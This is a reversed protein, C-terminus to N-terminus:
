DPAIGSTDLLARMPSTVAVVGRHLAPPMSNVRYIKVGPVRGSRGNPVTFELAEPARLSALAWLWLALRHSALGRVAFFAAIVPQLPTVPASNDIFVGRYPRRWEGREVMGRTQRESMGADRTQ